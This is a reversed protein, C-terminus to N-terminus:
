ICENLEEVGVFLALEYAAANFAITVCYFDHGNVTCFTQLERTNHNGVQPLGLLGAASRPGGHIVPAVPAYDINPIRKAACGIRGGLCHLFGCVFFCAPKNIHGDCPGLM